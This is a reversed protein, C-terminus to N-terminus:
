SVQTLVQDQALPDEFILEEPEIVLTAYYSLMFGEVPIKVIFSPAFTLSGEEYVSLTLDGMAYCVDPSEKWLENFEHVIHVTPDTFKDGTRTIKGFNSLTIQYPLNDALYTSGHTYIGQWVGNLQSFDFEVSDYTLSSSFFTSFGRWEEDTSDWTMHVSGDIIKKYTNFQIVIHVGVLDSADGAAWSHSLIDTTWSNAKSAYFSSMTENFIGDINSQVSSDEPGAFPSVSYDTVEANELAWGQDLKHWSIEVTMVAQSLKSKETIIYTAWYNNNGTESNQLSYDYTTYKDMLPNENSNLLQVMVSKVQAESPKRSGAVLFVFLVVLLVAAAAVIAQKPIGRTHRYAPPKVAGEGLFKGCRPCFAPSPGGSETYLPKGCYKCFRNSSPVDSRIVPERVPPMEARFGEASRPMRCMGCRDNGDNNEAGCNKCQWM